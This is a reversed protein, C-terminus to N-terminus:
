RKQIEAVTGAENLDIHTLGLSGEMFHIHCDVFGPLVVHQRADIVKTLPGKHTMVDKASGIALIKGDRAALAEAWPQKANVTYIRANFVISNAADVVEQGFAPLCFAVFLLFVRSRRLVVFM